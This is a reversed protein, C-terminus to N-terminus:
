ATAAQKLREPSWVLNVLAKVLGLRELQEQKDFGTFPKFPLNNTARFAAFQPQHQYIGAEMSAAYINQKAYHPIKDAFSKAQLSRNVDAPLLVLSAVHNRWEQFAQASSFSGGYRAFDDACIHEIDFPNKVDRDVYLDFSTPRGAGEETFATLRALMHFIYRRSFQNLLLEDIGGRGRTPSGAFTVDDNALKTSLIDVLDDLSKRRIDRCLLYMAYSASSYGVRIYNVVRRMLWIDLYTAAVAIKRRVTDDDDTTVLPALLVTNQWTFDNHANYFVAEWGRTYKHSAALIRQHARAFFPFDTTMMSLNQAPTGLKLRVRNDRAWRHFVTGILEWDRDTANAARDRTTDAYQSRFWSKICNADREPEHVGNWSILDLVQKRWVANAKRRQDADEVPALLYAKLM